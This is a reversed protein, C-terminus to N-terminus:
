GLLGDLLGINASDPFVASDLSQLSYGMHRHLVTKFLSRLDTSAQLDRGEHLDREALGPWEGLLSQASRQLSLAGGAVLALGGTGHDTGLTGNVQVTRGFETVIIVVTNTWNAGLGQQLRSVGEDLENFRRALLGQANGQNAHTDWGDSELVVINPGQPTNLFNVAADILVPFAPVPRRQMGTQETGAITSAHVAQQLRPGLFQDEAYLTLLRQLTDDSLTPMVPPTWSAVEAHGRLVQPIAQGIALGQQKGSTQLARNLWGSASSIPAAAVNFGNELVLQGDFHSRSRYPTAVAHLIGLQGKGYLQFLHNFSPHLAFHADLKHLSSETPVLPARLRALQVDRWPVVASLGDMGGRLIILVMRQSSGADTTAWSLGSLTSAASLLLANKLFQRRNRSTFSMILSEM